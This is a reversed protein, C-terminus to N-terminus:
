HQTESAIGAGTCGRSVLLLEELPKILRTHSELLSRWAHLHLEALVDSSCELVQFCTTSSGLPSCLDSLREHTAVHELVLQALNTAAAAQAACNSLVGAAHRWGM